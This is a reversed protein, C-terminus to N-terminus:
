GRKNRGASNFKAFAKVNMGELALHIEPISPPSKMEARGEFDGDDVEQRPTEARFAAIVAAYKDTPVDDLSTVGATAKLIGLATKHDTARRCALFAQHMKNRTPM